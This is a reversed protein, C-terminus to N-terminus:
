SEETILNIRAASTTTIRLYRGMARDSVVVNTGPGTTSTVITREADFYTVATAVVDSLVRFAVVEENLDIDVTDAPTITGYARTSM